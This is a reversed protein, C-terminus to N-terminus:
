EIMVAGSATRSPTFRLRTAVQQIVITYQQREDEADAFVYPLLQQDCFEELTWWFAEM